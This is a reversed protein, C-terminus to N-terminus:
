KLEKKRFLLIGLLGNVAGFFCFSGCSIGFEKWSLDLGHMNGYAPILYLLDRIYERDGLFTFLSAVLQLAICLILTFIITGGTSGTSLALFTSITSAFIFTLIGLAAWRVFQLVVAGTIEESYDLFLFGFLLTFATYIVAMVASFVGSSILHSLYVKTRSSGSILKSRLTGSTLDGCVLLGAFIPLILGLNDGLSFTTSLIMELGFMASYDMDAKGMGGIELDVELGESLEEALEETYELLAQIGVYLLSLVLPLVLTLILMVLTLKSKRIRYFDARLLKTM